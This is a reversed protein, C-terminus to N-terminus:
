TMKSGTGCCLSEGGKGCQYKSATTSKASIKSARICQCVELINAFLLLWPSCCAPGSDQEECQYWTCLDQELHYGECQCKSASTSKYFGGNALVGPLPDKSLKLAGYLFLEYGTCSTAHAESRLM